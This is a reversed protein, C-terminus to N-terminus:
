GNQEATLASAAANGDDPSHAADIGVHDAGAFRAASICIGGAWFLAAWRGRFIWRLPMVRLAM